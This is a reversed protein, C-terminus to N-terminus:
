FFLWPAIDFRDIRTIGALEWAAPYVSRRAPGLAFFPKVWEALVHAIQQQTTQLGQAPTTAPGTMM